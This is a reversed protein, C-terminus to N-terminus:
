AYEDKELDHLRPQCVWAPLNNRPGCLHSPQSLHEPVYALIPISSCLVPFLLFPSHTLLPTLILSPSLFFSLFFSLFLFLSFSHALWHHNRPTYQNHMAFLPTFTSPLLSFLFSFLLFVCDYFYATACLLFLHDFLLSVSHM